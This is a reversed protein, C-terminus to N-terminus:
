QLAARYHATSATCSLNCPAIFIVASIPKDLHVWPGAKSALCLILFANIGVFVDIRLWPDCKDLSVLTVATRFASVATLGSLLLAKRGAILCLWHMIILVLLAACRCRGPQVAGELAPPRTTRRREKRGQTLRVAQCEALQAHLTSPSSALEVNFAAAVIGIEIWGNNRAECIDCSGFHALIKDVHM